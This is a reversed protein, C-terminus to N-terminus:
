LPQWPLSDLLADCGLGSGNNPFEVGLGCETLPASFTAARYAAYRRGIEHDMNHTICFLEGAPPDAVLAPKWVRVEFGELADAPGRDLALRLGSESSLRRWESPEYPTPDEVFDIQDRVRGPLSDVWRLFGDADISANFDVRVRAFQAAPITFEPAKVKVLSGEPLPDGGSWLQHSKPIAVGDFLWRGGARAEGDIECCRLCAQALDTPAGDRISNLHTELPEDGLSTWPQLCGVGGGARVLAGAIAGAATSANPPAAFEQQYRWIEM